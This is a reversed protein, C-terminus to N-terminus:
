TCGCLNIEVTILFFLTQFLTLSEVHCSKVLVLTNIINKSLNEGVMFM